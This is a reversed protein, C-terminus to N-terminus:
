KLPWYESDAISTTARPGLGGQPTVTAARGASDDEDDKYGAWVGERMGGARLHIQPSGNEKM